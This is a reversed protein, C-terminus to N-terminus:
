PTDGFPNRYSYREQSTNQLDETQIEATIKRLTELFIGPYRMLGRGSGRLDEGTSGDTRRNETLYDLTKVLYLYLQGQAYSILCQTM